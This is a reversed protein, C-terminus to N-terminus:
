GGTRPPNSSRKLKWESMKKGSPTEHAQPPLTGKNGLFELWNFYEEVLFIADVIELSKGQKLALDSLLKTRDLALNYALQLNREKRRASREWIGSVLLVSSSVLSATVASTILVEIM